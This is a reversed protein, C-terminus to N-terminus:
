LSGPEGEDEDDTESDSEIGAENVDDDGWGGDGDVSEEFPDADAAETDEKAWVEWRKLLSEPLESLAAKRKGFERLAIIIKSAKLYAARFKSWLGSDMCPHPFYPDSGTVAVLYRKVVEVTLDTSDFNVASCKDYDLTWLQTENRNFDDVTNRPPPRAQHNRYVKPFNPNTSCGIVFETDAADIGADWHLIALGIAMEETYATINLGIRKAQDFYLPFNRL